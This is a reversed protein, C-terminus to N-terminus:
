QGQGLSFGPKGDFAYLNETKIVDVNARIANQLLQVIHEKGINQGEAAHKFRCRWHDTCFTEPFGDPYVKIGRNTIMSLKVVDLAIGKIIDALADPSSGPWHVFLDVGLLEKKAPARRSYKPLQILKEESYHVAQLRSPSQGLNAIVAEAFERTGVKQTSVGEKYIDYTHIGDEITKLWANQVKEAVKVQGIHILMQIAGQLLGSPNAM